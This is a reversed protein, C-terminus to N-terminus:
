ARVVGKVSRVILEGLHHAAEGVLTLAQEFQGDDVALAAARLLRAVVDKDIPKAM